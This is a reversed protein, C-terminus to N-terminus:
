EQSIPHDTIYLKGDQDIQGIAYRPTQLNKKDSLAGISYVATKESFQNYISFSHLDGHVVYIYKDKIQSITQDLQQAQQYVNQIKKDDIYGMSHITLPHNISKHALIIITKSRSENITQIIQNLKDQKLGQYIDANNVFIFQVDSDVFSIPPEQFYKLFYAQPDDAKDRGNWLDHDGPLLFYKQKLKTISSNFNQFEANTGVDTYDGLGFLYKTSTQNIQQIAIDLNHNSNHSDAIFAVAMVPNSARNQPSSAPSTQVNQLFDQKLKVKIFNRIIFKVSESQYIISLFILIITFILIFVSLKKFSPNVM